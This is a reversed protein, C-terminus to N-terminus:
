FEQTIGDETKNHLNAVLNELKKIKRRDPLFTFKWSILCWSGSFIM